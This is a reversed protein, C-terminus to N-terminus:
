EPQKAASGGAITCRGMQEKGVKRKGGKEKKRVLIKARQKEIEPNARFWGLSLIPM